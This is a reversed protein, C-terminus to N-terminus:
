FIDPWTIKVGKEYVELVRDSYEFPSHSHIVIDADKGVDLSGVRDDVGLLRASGLTIMDFAKMPPVGNKIVELLAIKLMEPPNSPYDTMFSVEVGAEYLRTTLWRDPCSMELKPRGVFFPGTVAKVGSDIIRGLLLYGETLHELILDLSYREKLELALLIDEKCHCHVRVPMCDLKDINEELFEFLVERLTERELGHEKTVNEGLAVKICSERKLVENSGVLKVVSGIGGVLNASGPLIGATTVGGTLASEFLGINKFNMNDAAILDLSILKGKINLKDIGTIEEFLGLHCHPEVFGPLIKEGNVYRRIEVGQPIVIDEGVAV